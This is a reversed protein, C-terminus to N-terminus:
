YLRRRNRAHGSPEAIASYRVQKAASELQEVNSPIDLGSSKTEGTYSSIEDEDNHTLDVIAQDQQAPQPLPPTGLVLLAGQPENFYMDEISNRDGDYQHVPEDMSCSDTSCSVGHAVLPHDSYHVQDRKGDAIQLFIQSLFSFSILIFDDLTVLPHDSYHVQDRIRDAM